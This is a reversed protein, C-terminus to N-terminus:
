YIVERLFLGKAPATKGARGRDKSALIEVFDRLSSRGQGVDFVTGAVNRVMHRLFGDGHLVIAWGDGQQQLSASFIQRVAGRGGVVSCDRSGAAEFCSFDHEGVLLSLASEMMEFDLQKPVQTYYLRQHPLVIPACLFQYAYIKGKAKFRAHFDADVEDVQLIAIDDPLLCNLGKLFGACPISSITHFNAVMGLAHVGADTRGAGHVIVPATTMLSIKEELVGQITPQIRQRQWGAYATGDYAILLRINRM